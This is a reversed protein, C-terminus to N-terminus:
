SLLAQKGESKARYMTEFETICDELEHQAMLMEMMHKLIFAANDNNEAEGELWDMADSYQEIESM